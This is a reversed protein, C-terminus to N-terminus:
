VGPEDIHDSPESYQEMLAECQRMFGEAAFEPWVAAPVMVPAAPRESLSEGDDVVFVPQVMVKLLRLRKM